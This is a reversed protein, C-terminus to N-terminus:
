FIFLYVLVTFMNQDYVESAPGCILNVCMDLNCQMIAQALSVCKVEEGEGEGKM